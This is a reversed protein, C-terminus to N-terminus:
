ATRPASPLVLRRHVVGPLFGTRYYLAEAPNGAAVGFKLVPFHGSLASMAHRLMKSGLGQRRYAPHVAVDLVKAYSVEPRIISRNTRVICASAVAENERDFVVTSADHCAQPTDEDALCKEVRKRWDDLSYRALAWPQPYDRYGERFLVAIQEAHSPQPTDVRYREDWDVELRETPAIYVRRGGRDQFGLREYLEVEDPMVDVAEIDQAPDSWDNLLPMVAQLVEYRCAFPPRTFLGEIHNPRVIVGGIREGRLFVWFCINLGELDSGYDLFEDFDPNVNRYIAYSVGFLREPASRISFGGGLDCVM